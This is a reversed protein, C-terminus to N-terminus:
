RIPLTPKVTKPVTLRASRTRGDKYHRRFYVYRKGAFLQRFEAIMFNHVEPRQASWANFVICDGERSDGSSLPSRGSIWAEAKDRGTLAWGAFGQVKHNQDIVFRCQRRNIQGVLIRTWDGFALKAFAPKGMLHEVALGLALGPSDPLYLRLEAGAQIEASRRTMLMQQM